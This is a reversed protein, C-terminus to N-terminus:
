VNLDSHPTYAPEPHAIVELGDDRASSVISETVTPVISVTRVISVTPANDGTLTSKKAFGIGGSNRHRFFLPNTYLRLRPLALPSAYATTANTATSARWGLKQVVYLYAHRYHRRAERALGFFAFFAFACYVYLWHQFIISITYKRDAMWVSFPMQVVQSFDEHVVKWNYPRVGAIANTTMFYISTPVTILVEHSVLAMLRLYFGTGLASDISASDSVAQKFLRYRSYLNRLTLV